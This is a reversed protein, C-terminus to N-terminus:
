ISEVLIRFDIQGDHRPALRSNYSIDSWLESVTASGSKCTRFLKSCQRASFSDLDDYRRRGLGDLWGVVPHSQSFM